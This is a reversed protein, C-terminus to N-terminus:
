KIKIRFGHSHKSYNSQMVKRLEGKYEHQVIFSDHISLIPIGKKAFHYLVDLAIKSDLNMTRLGNEKNSFFHHAIKSHHNIIQKILSTSNIIGKRRLSELDNPHDIFWYECAGIAKKFESSNTMILFLKKILPRLQPQDDFILYPDGFYQIGAKAYLLYPHLGSYDLEVVSDGNITLQSREEESYGQYHSYGRTHLRGYRGFTNKFIAILYPNLEQNLYRIDAEENIGNILELKKRIGSTKRNDQYPLLKKKDNRLEVLEIPKKIIGDDILPLRSLLKETARIRTERSREKKVKDNFGLKMEIYGLDNLSHIIKITSAGAITYRSKGWKNPSMSVQIPKRNKANLLNATLIYFSNRNEKRDSIKTELFIANLEKKLDNSLNLSHDFHWSDHWFKGTLKSIEREKKSNSIIAKSNIKM